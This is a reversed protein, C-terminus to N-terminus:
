VSILFMQLFQSIKELMHRKKITKGDWHLVWVADESQLLVQNEDNIEEFKEHRADKKYHLLSNKSLNVDEIDGGAAQILSATYKLQQRTSLGDVDAQM